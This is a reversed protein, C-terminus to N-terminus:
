NAAAGWSGKIRQDNSSSSFIPSPHEISPDRRTSPAEVASGANNVVRENKNVPFIGAGAISALINASTLVTEWAGHIVYTKNSKLPM